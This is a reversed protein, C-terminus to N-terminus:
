DEFFDDFYVDKSEINELNLDVTPRSSADKEEVLEVKNSSVDSINNENNSVNQNMNFGTTLSNSNEDFNNTRELSNQNSLDFDNRARTNTELYSNTVEKNQNSYNDYSNNGGQFHEDRYSEERRQDYGNDLYGDDRPLRNQEPYPYRDYNNENNRSYDDRYSEERRQNYGNDLYRDDRPLRNQEPYSHRDYNNSSNRSYDDRYSDERRQNYGNDLYRDDRPLRNQEPYPYSDYNNLSNRSYDDPYSDDRRQNYGNDLYRDNRPPMNRDFAEGSNNAMDLVNDSGANNRTRPDQRNDYRRGNDYPRNNSDSFSIFKNVENQPIKGANLDNFNIFNSSDNNNSYNNSSYNLDSGNDFGSLFKSSKSRGGNDNNFNNGNNNNNNLDNSVFADNLFSNLGFTDSPKNQEYGYERRENVFQGDGASVVDGIVPKSHFSSSFGPLDEVLKGNSIRMNDTLLQGFIDVSGNGSDQEENTSSDTDYMPAGFLSEDKTSLGGPMRNVKEKNFISDFNSSPSKKSNFADFDNSNNFVSNRKEEEVVKKQSNGGFLDVKRSDGNNVYSNRNNANDIKNFVSDGANNVFNNNPRDIYGDLMLSNKNNDFEKVVLNDSKYKEVEYNSDKKDLTSAIPAGLLLDNTGGPKLENTVSYRIPINPTSVDDKSIVGIESSLLLNDLNTSDKKQNFKDNFGKSVSTSGITAFKNANKKGLIGKVPRMDSLQKKDVFDPSSELNKFFNSNGLNSNNSMKTDAIISNGSNQEYRIPTNDRRWEEVPKMGKEELLIDNFETDFRPLEKRIVDPYINKSNEIAKRVDFIDMYERNDFVTYSFAQKLLTLCVDPYRSGLAFVRKYESTIDVLFSMIREQIFPTYKMKRGTQKEFKPLTGMMIQITEERTPEPVEVKQFRRTFAKDRLIYREYEDSTTAGIVKISGRGLGEKFINAFDLSSSDTAGILMHIEDVFLIVKDRTKLEDIMKQVKSEGSPMTGLLSATKINIITYGQLAEPVEGRQMRYALGEVIATKGIGPKGILIASKEPTLLILMLEKIQQDRGIAPNTIFENATVDEGYRDLVSFNSEFEVLRDDM